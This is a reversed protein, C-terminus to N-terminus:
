ASSALMPRRTRQRHPRVTSSCGGGLTTLALSFGEDRDAPPFVNRRM